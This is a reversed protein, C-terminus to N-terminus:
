TDRCAHIHIETIDTHIYSRVYISMCSQSDRLVEYANTNHISICTDFIEFDIAYILFFYADSLAPIFLHDYIHFIIYRM